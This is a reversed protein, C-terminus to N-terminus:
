GGPGSNGRDARLQNTIPRFLGLGFFSSHGLLMPGHTREDFRLTLRYGRRTVETRSARRPVHVAVWSNGHVAVDVREPLGRAALDRRIQEEISEGSKLEGRRGYVHRPPVYPTMTEWRTASSGDFGPPAAVAYDLPVLRVAWRGSGYSWPLDKEAAKLLAWQEEASFQEPRWVLLRSPHADEWWVVYAAHGHGTLPYGDADKGALGSLKGRTEPDVTRWTADSSGSLRAALARIARGRFRSTLRTVANTPPEVACGLAFQLLKTPTPALVHRRQEIRRAPTPRQAFLWRAGPPLSVGRVTEDDTRAELHARTTKRTWALVPVTGSVRDELVDVNPVIDAHPQVREMLVLSEARGFYATRALCSDLTRLVAHTWDTGELFWYVPDDEPLSWWNDPFLTRSYTKLGPQKKEPPVKKFEAPHYQRAGSGRSATPPLYFAIRSAALAKILADLENEAHGEEERRLQHWRAVVARALRWPSPPWEGHPDAFPNARWPNAHFRGLTFEQCLVVRM